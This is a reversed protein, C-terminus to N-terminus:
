ESDTPQIAPDYQVIINCRSCMWYTEHYKLSIRQFAHGQKACALQMVREKDNMDERCQQEKQIADEHAAVSTQWAHLAEPFTMKSTM